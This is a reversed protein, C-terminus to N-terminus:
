DRRLVVAADNPNFITLTGGVLTAGRMIPHPMPKNRYLVHRFVLSGRRVIYDGQLSVVRRNGEAVSMKGDPQFTIQVPISLTHSKGTPGVALTSTGIWTGTLSPISLPLSARSALWHHTGLGIGTGVLGCVAAIVCGKRNFHFTKRKEERSRFCLGSLGPPCTKM